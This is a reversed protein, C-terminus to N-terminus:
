IVDAFNRELRMFTIWGIGLVVVSVVFSYLLLTFDPPSNHLLSQRYGDFLGTMPNLAMIPQYEDPITHYSYMVPSLYRGMRLIIPTVLGFDRIYANAASLFLMLGLTLMMQVMLIPISYLANIGPVIGYYIFVIVLGILTIGFNVTESSLKVFVLAPRFFNRQRILGANSVIIKSSSNVATNFFLWPLLAVFLFPAYPLGESPLKVFLSFVITLVIMLGMPQILVWLSGLLSQQYKSIIERRSLTLIFDKHEIIKSLSRSM